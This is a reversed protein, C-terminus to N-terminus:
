KCKQLIKLVMNNRGIRYITFVQFYYSLYLSLFVLQLYKLCYYPQYRVKAFRGGQEISVVNKSRSLKTAVASLESRDRFDNSICQIIKKETNFASTKLDKERYVDLILSIVLLWSHFKQLKLIATASGPNRRSPPVLGGPPVLMRNQWFEGFFQM